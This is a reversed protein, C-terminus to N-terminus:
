ASQASHVSQREETGIDTKATKVRVYETIQNIDRGCTFSLM